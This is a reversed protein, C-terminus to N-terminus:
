EWYSHAKRRHPAPSQPTTVARPVSKEAYDNLPIAVRPNNSIPREASTTEPSQTSPMIETAAEIIGPVVKVVPNVEVADVTKNLIITVASPYNNGSGTKYNATPAVPVDQSANDWDARKAESPVVTRGSFGDQTKCQILMNSISKQVRVSDPSKVKWKGIANTLTCGAGSVSADNHMTQVAISQYKSDMVSACGTLALLTSTAIVKRM